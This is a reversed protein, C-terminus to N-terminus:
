EMYIQLCFLRSKYSVAKEHRNAFMGAQRPLLCNNWTSKYAFCGAQCSVTMGHLKCAFCGPNSPFLRKM